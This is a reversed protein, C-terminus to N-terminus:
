RNKTLAIKLSGVWWCTQWLVGAKWDQHGPKALNADFILYDGFNPMKKKKRKVMLFIETSQRSANIRCVRNLAFFELNKNLKLGSEAYKLFLTETANQLLKKFYWFLLHRKIYHCVEYLNKKKVWINKHKSM